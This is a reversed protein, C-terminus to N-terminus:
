TRICAADSRVCSWSPASTSVQCIINANVIPEEAQAIESPNPFNTPNDINVVEGNTRTIRYIVSPATTILEM